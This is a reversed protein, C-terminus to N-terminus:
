YWKLISNKLLCMLIHNRTNEQGVNAGFRKIVLSCRVIKRGMVSLFKYIKTIFRTALSSFTIAMYVPTALSSFFFYFCIQRSIFIFYPKRSRQSKGNSNWWFHACESKVLAKWYLKSVRLILTIELFDDIISATAYGRIVIDM